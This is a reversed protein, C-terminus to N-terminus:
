SGSLGLLLLRLRVFPNSIVKNNITLRTDSIMMEHQFVWITSVEHESIEVLKEGFQAYL